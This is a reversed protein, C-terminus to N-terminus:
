QVGAFTLRNGRSLETTQISEVAIEAGEINRFDQREDPSRNRLRAAAEPM